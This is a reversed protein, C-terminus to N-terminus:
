IDEPLTLQWSNVSLTTINDSSDLLFSNKLNAFGGRTVKTYFDYLVPQAIGDQSVFDAKVQVVNDTLPAGQTLGPFPDRDTVIEWDCWTNGADQSSRAYVTVSSNAPETTEIYVYSHDLEREDSINWPEITLTGTIPLTPGSEEAIQLGKMARSPLRSMSAAMSRSIAM